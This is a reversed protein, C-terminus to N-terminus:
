REPLSHAACELMWLAERLHAGSRWVGTQNRVLSILFLAACSNRPSCGKEIAISESVQLLTELM